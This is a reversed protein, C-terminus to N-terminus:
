MVQALKVRLDMYERLTLLGSDKGARLMEGMRVYRDAELIEVGAGVLDYLADLTDRVQRSLCAEWEVKAIWLRWM